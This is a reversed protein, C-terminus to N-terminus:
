ITKYSLCKNTKKHSSIYGKSVISNCIPCTIKRNNDYYEKCYKKIYNKIHEKNQKKYEKNYENCKERNNERWEKNYEKLYEKRDEETAYAAYSNLTPQLNTIYEQELQRIEDIDEIEREELLLCGIKTINHKRCTEYLKNKRINEKLRINHLTQREKLSKITSGIYFDDKNVEVKYVRGIM